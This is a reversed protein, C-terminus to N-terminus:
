VDCEVHALLRSMRKYRDEKGVASSVEYAGVKKNKSVLFSGPFM